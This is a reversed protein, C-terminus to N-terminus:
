MCRIDHFQSRGVHLTDVQRVGHEALLNRLSLFYRPDPKEHHTDDCSVTWDFPMGLTLEFCSLAWRQANTAAVLRFLIGALSATACRRRRMEM